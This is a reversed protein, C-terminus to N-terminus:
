SYQLVQVLSEAKIKINEYNSKYLTLFTDSDKSDQYTRFYLPFVGEFVVDESPITGSNRVGGAELCM